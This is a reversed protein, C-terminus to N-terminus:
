KGKKPNLVAKVLKDDIEIKYCRKYHEKVVKEFDSDKKDELLVWKMMLPTDIGPAVWSYLGLPIDYIKNNKVANVRSWDQAKFNDKYKKAGPGMYVYIEDPQWKYIQEMNVEKEGEIDKAVNNIGAYKLWYAGFTNSGSVTLKSGTNNFIILANKKNDNDKVQLKEAEEVEKLISFKPTINLVECITKEWQKVITAANKEGAMYFDVVPINLNELGKRQQEGYCFVIDPNLNMLKEVDINFGKIYTRNKEEVNSIKLKLLQQNANILTFPHIGVIKEQENLLADVMTLLPPSSIVIREIEKNPIAVSHGSCDVVERINDATKIDSNSCGVLFVLLTLIVVLKKM